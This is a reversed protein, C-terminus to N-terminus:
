LIDLHLPTSLASSMLTAPDAPQKALARSLAEDQFLVELFNSHLFGRLCEIELLADAIDSVAPPDKFSSKDILLLKEFDRYTSTFAKIWKPVEEATVIYRVTALTESPRSIGHDQLKERTLASNVRITWPQSHAFPEGSALRSELVGIPHEGWVQKRYLNLMRSAIKPYGHNLYHLCFLGTNGGNSPLAGSQFDKIVTFVDQLHQEHPRTRWAALIEHGTLPSELPEVKIELADPQESWGRTNKVALMLGQLPNTAWTAAIGRIDREAHSVRLNKSTGTTLLTVVHQMATLNRRIRKDAVHPKGAQVGKLAVTAMSIQIALDDFELSSPSQFTISTDRPPEIHPDTM